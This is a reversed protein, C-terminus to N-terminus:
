KCSQGLDTTLTQYLSIDTGCIHNYSDRKELCLFIIFGAIVVTILSLISLEVLFVNSYKNLSM